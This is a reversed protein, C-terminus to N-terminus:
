GGIGVSALWDLMADVSAQTQGPSVLDGAIVHSDSDGDEGLTVIQVTVPGGWAEAVKRTEDPLVVQDQESFRFLAPVQAQGFDQKVAADVLAAMPLVGVTPYDTTWYRGIGESAPEYSRREGALLPLWWRAGPWTMLGAGPANVGFNPSVLIVAALDESMAPDLAALAALTGGTSTAMVVVREGVARGAALAEASDEMWDVATVEGMADGPRGHGALRTYVLNAGLADAVRDPVPRIEESTASFGHIYVVSVPTRREHFGDQWIVRKEVGPTIDDFASEISEFYVQVGEGFKRAEFDARLAVPEQPGFVKLAALGLVAIVLIWGVIRGVM